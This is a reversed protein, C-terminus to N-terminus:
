QYVFFTSERFGLWSVTWKTFGRIRWQNSPEVAPLLAELKGPADLVEARELPESASSSKIGGAPSKPQPCPFCLM